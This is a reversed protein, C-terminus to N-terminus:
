HMEGGWFIQDCSYKEIFIQRGVAMFFPLSSKRSLMRLVSPVWPYQRKNGSHNLVCAAEKLKYNNKIMSPQVLSNKMFTYLTSSCVRCVRCGGKIRRGTPRRQKWVHNRKLKWIKLHNKTDRYFDLVWLHSWKDWVSKIWKIHIVMELHMKVSLSTDM